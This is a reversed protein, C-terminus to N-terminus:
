ILSKLLEDIDAKNDIVKVVHGKGTLERHRVLQRATPKRGRSKLEIWIVRADPLLLLRDPYGAMDPNSYKLCPLGHQKARDVLYREISKESVASHRAINLINRKMGAMPQGTKSRKIVPENEPTTLTTIDERTPAVGVNQTIRKHNIVIKNM